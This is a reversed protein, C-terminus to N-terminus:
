QKTKERGLGLVAIQSCKFCKAEWRKDRPLSEPPKNCATIKDGAVGTGPLLHPPHGPCGVIAAIANHCGHLPVRGVMLQQLTRGYRYIYIYILM